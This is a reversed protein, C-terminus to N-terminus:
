CVLQYLSPCTCSLGDSSAVMLPDPCTVCSYPDNTNSISNSGCAVCQKFSLFNGLADKEVLTGNKSCYCDLTATNFGLTSSGCSMCLSRDRSSAFPCQQCGVTGSSVVQIYGEPCICNLGDISVRNSSCTTCAMSTTDFYSTSTCSTTNAYYIVRQAQVPEILLLTIANLVRKIGESKQISKMSPYPEMPSSKILRSEQTQNQRSPSFIQLQLSLIPPM